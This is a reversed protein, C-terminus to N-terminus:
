PFPSIVFKSTKNEFKLEYTFDLCNALNTSNPMQNSVVTVYVPHGPNVQFIFFFTWIDILPIYVLCLDSFLEGWENLVIQNPM